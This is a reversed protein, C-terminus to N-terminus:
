TMRRKAAVATAKKTIQQVAAGSSAHMIGSLVIVAGSRSHQLCIAGIHPEAFIGCDCEQQLVSTRGPMVITAVFL